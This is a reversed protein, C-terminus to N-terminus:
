TQPKPYTSLNHLGMPASDPDLTFDALPACELERELFSMLLLRTTRAARIKTASQKKREDLRKVVAEYFKQWKRPDARYSDVTIRFERESTDLARFLSDPNFHMATDPHLTRFKESEELLTVYLSQFRDDSLPRNPPSGTQHCSACLLFIFLLMRNM